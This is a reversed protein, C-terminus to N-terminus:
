ASRTGEDGSGDDGAGVLNYGSAYERTDSGMTVMGRSGATPATTYAVAEGLQAGDVYFRMAMADPDRVFAVHHWAGDLLPSAATSSFTANTGAGHEWFMQFTADPMLALRWSYNTEEDESYYDNTAYSLLVSGYSGDTPTRDVRVWTSLTLEDHLALVYDGMSSAEVFDAGGTLDVYAGSPGDTADSVTAGGELVGHISKGNPATDDATGDDFTYRALVTGPAPTASAMVYRDLPDNYQGDGDDDGYFTAVAEEGDIEVLLFGHRQQYPRIPDYGQWGGGTGIITEWTDGGAGLQGPQYRHWHGTFVGTVDNAVLTQWFAGSTGGHSNDPFSIPHHTIVFVHDFDSRDQLKEDLWALGASSVYGYATPSDSTVFIVRTNGHDVVFSVGEEGPPSDDQPLDPFTERWRDFTTSGGYVDHNGPVMYVEGEFLSAATNFDGWQRVTENISSSGDVLDGAVFFYEAGLDNAGEVIGPMVDWNISDHNGDTQVDGVVAFVMTDTAQAQAAHSLLPLLLSVFSTM